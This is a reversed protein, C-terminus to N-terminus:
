NKVSCNFARKFAARLAVAAADSEPNASEIYTNLASLLFEPNIRRDTICFENELVLVALAGQLVGTCYGSITTGVKVFNGDEDVGMVITEDECKKRLEELGIVIKSDQVKSDPRTPITDSNAGALSLGAALFLVSFAWRM